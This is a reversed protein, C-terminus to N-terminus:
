PLVKLGFTQDSDSFSIVVTDKTVGVSYEFIRNRIDPALEKPLFQTEALINGTILDIKVLSFDGRVVYGVNNDRILGIKSIYREPRCWVYEGTNLNLGCIGLDSTLVFLIDDNSQIPFWEARLFIPGPNSWLIKGTQHDIGIMGSRQDPSFRHIEINHEIWDINYAPQETIIKGTEPSLEIIKQGYYVRVLSNESQVNIAVHGDGLKTSWLLDGTSTKYAYADTTTITVVTRDTSLIGRVGVEDPNLNKEWVISGNYGNM